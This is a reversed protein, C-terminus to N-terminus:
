LFDACASFIYKTLPLLEMATVTVTTTTTLLTKVAQVSDWKRKKKTKSEFKCKKTERSFELSSV